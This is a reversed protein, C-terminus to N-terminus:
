SATQEIVVQVPAGEPPLSWDDVVVVVFRSGQEDLHDVVRGHWVRQGLMVDAMLRRRRELM